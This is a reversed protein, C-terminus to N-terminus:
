IYLSTFPRPYRDHPSDTMGSLADILPNAHGEKIKEYFAQNQRRLSENVYPFDMTRHIALTRTYLPERLAIRLARNQVRQLIARTTPACGSWVPCAYTLSPVIIAFVIQAKSALPMSSSRLLSHMACLKRNAIDATREVHPKWTLKSDLLAGLYLSTSNWRIPEANLTIDPPTPNRHRRSFLTATTKGTNLTMRNDQYWLNLKDLAPQLYKGLQKPNFSQAIIAVDDAYIALEANPLSTPIDYTFLNFLVPGIISGQPVGALIPRFTSSASALHVAFSRNALYSHTFNILYPPFNLTIMKALLGDHWVKDFAKAVDLFVIGTCRRKNFADTIKDTVRLLQQTTSHHERFGFQENPLINNEAIHWGYRTNGAKECLKGMTMLLSIPRYSTPNRLNKGPKPFVVVKAVKWPTPFHQLVFVANIIAVLRLGAEGPLMKLMQNNIGDLGPAKNNALKTVYGIIEDRTVPIVGDLATDPPNLSRFSEVAAEVRATDPTAPNLTFQQELSDALAEAKDRPSCALHNRGQIPPCHQKKKTLRRTMAWLSKSSPELQSVADEWKEGRHKMVLQQTRKELDKYRLKMDPTRHKQWQRRARNKERIAIQIGPPLDFISCRNKECLPTSSDRAALIATTLHSVADDLEAPTTIPSTDVQNALETQFMLWDTKRYNYRTVPQIADCEDGLRMIVPNHDSSLEVVTELEFSTTVDKLIAIDLVDGRGKAYHTPEKPGAVTFGMRRSMTHLARGRANTVISNWNAHKANFDGGIITPHPSDLLRELDSEALKTGPPYYIAIVRLPGSKTKLQIGTAEYSSSPPLVLEHHDQNSDVILATGGSRSSVSRDTRYVRTNALKLPLSPILHTESIMAVNINHSSIFHHLEATKPFISNANWICFSLQKNQAPM